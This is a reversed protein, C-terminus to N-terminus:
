GSHDLAHDFLGPLVLVRRELRLGMGVQYLPYVSTLVHMFMCLCSSRLIPYVHGLYLILMPFIMYVEEAVLDNLMFPLRLILMKMCDGALKANEKRNIYLDYFHGAYEPSLTIMSTDSMVTALRDALRPEFVSDPAM